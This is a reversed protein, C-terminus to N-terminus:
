ESKFSFLSVRKRVIEPYLAPSRCILIMAVETLRGMKCIPVQPGSLSDSLIGAGSDTLELAWTRKRQVGRPTKMVVM